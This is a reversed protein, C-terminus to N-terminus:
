GSDGDDNHDGDGAKGELATLRAHHSDLEARHGDLGGDVLIQRRGDAAPQVTLGTLPQGRCASRGQLHRLVQRAPGRGPSAAAM